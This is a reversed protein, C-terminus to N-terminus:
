KRRFYAAGTINKYVKFVDCKAGTWPDVAIYGSGLGLYSKRIAVVWHKGHNVQLIVATDPHALAADINKPVYGYERREFKMKEFELNGWIILGDRTYNKIKRAIADPYVLCKFYDSLM